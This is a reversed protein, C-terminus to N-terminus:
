ALYYTRSSGEGFFCVLGSNVLDDLDRHVQRQTLGTVKIIERNSLTNHEQFMSLIRDQTKQRFNETRPTRPPKRVWWRRRRRPRLFGFSEIADQMERRWVLRDPEPMSLYDMVHGIQVRDYRSVYDGVNAHISDADWEVTEVPPESDRYPYAPWRYLSAEGYLAVHHQLLCTRDVLRAVGEQKSDVVGERIWSKVQTRSSPRVAVDRYTEYALNFPQFCPVSRWPDPDPAAYAVESGGKRTIVRREWGFKTLIAFAESKQAYSPSDENFHQWFEAATLFPTPTGDRVPVSALFSRIDDVIDPDNPDVFWDPLTM